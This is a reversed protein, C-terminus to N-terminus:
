SGARAAPQQAEEMKVSEEKPVMHFYVREAM